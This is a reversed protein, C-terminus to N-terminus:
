KGNCFATLQYATQKVGGEINWSLFPTHIDIGLPSNLHATKLRIAQM